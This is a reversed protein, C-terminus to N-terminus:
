NETKECNASDMFFETVSSTVQDGDKKGQVQLVDLLLRCILCLKCLCLALEKDTPYTIFFPKLELVKGLSIHLGEEQLKKQIACITCTAVRRNVAFVTRNRKTKEEVKVDKHVMDQGYIQLFKRRSLKLM